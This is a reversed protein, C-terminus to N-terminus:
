NIEPNVYGTPPVQGPDVGVSLYTVHDPVSTWTHMMRVALAVRM